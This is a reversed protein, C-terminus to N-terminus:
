RNIQSFWWGAVASGIGTLALIAGIIAGALDSISSSGSPQSPKSAVPKSAPATPEAPKLEAKVTAAPKARLMTPQSAPMPQAEPTFRQAALKKVDDSISEDARLQELAADFQDRTLDLVPVKYTSDFTEEGKANFIQIQVDAAPGKLAAADTIPIEVTKKTNVTQTVESKGGEYTAVITFEQEQTGLNEIEGVIKNDTRHVAIGNFVSRNLRFGADGNRFPASLRKVEEATPEDPVEGTVSVLKTPDVGFDKAGLKLASWDSPIQFHNDAPDCADQVEGVTSSPTGAAQSYDFRTGQYRYNMVSCYGPLKNTRDQAEQESYQERFFNLIPEPDTAGTHYLGLTHGLEHLITNRVLTEDNIEDHKAVYFGSLGVNAVGSSRSGVWKGSTDRVRYMTDGILGVRFVGRREKLLADRMDNITRKKAMSEATAGDLLGNEVIAEADDIGFNNLLSQRDLYLYEYPVREGGRADDYNTLSPSIYDGADIHLTIDNEAFIQELQRLTRRSPEFRNLDSDSCQLFRAVSNASGSYAESDCKLGSATWKPRMWNLQLFVDKHNPDAGWKHIPVLHTEVEGTKENYVQSPYGNIEWEDLLGDGDSDVHPDQATAVSPTTFSVATSALAVCLAVAASSRKMRNTM